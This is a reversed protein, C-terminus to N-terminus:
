KKLAAYAGILANLLILGGMLRAQFVDSKHIASKVSELQSLIEANMRKRTGKESDQDSALRGIKQEQLADMRELTVIKQEQNQVTRRLEEFAAALPISM